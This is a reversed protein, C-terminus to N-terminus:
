KADMADIRRRVEATLAPNERLRDRLARWSDAVLLQQAEPVLAPNTAVAQRLSQKPSRAFAEMWAAPISPNEALPEHRWPDAYLAELQALPLSPNMTAYWRTGAHPSTLFRSLREPALNPHRVAQEMAQPEGTDFLRELLPSPCRPHGLALQLGTAGTAALQDFEEPTLAERPGDLGGRLLLELEDETLVEPLARRQAEGNLTDHHAPRLFFAERRLATPLVPNTLIYTANSYLRRSAHLVWRAFAPPCQPSSLLLFEGYSTLEAWFTAHELTLLPWAPNDLVADLHRELLAALRAPPTSPDLAELREAETPETV